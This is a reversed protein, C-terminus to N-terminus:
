KQHVKLSVFREVFHRKEMAIQNFGHISSSGVVEVLYSRPKARAEGEPEVKSKQLSAFLIRLTFYYVVEVASIVSFGLFLGMSGGCYSVFDLTTLQQQFVLPFFDNNKFHVVLLSGFNNLRM